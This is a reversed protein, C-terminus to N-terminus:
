MKGVVGLYIPSASMTSALQTLQPISITVISKELICPYLLCSLLYSVQWFLLSFCILCITSSTMEHPPHPLRQTLPHTM